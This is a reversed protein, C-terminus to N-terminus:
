NDYYTYVSTFSISSDSFYQGYIFIKIANYVPTSTGAGFRTNIYKKINIYLSKSPADPTLIYKKDFLIDSKYYTDLAKPQFVIQSQTTPTRLLTSSNLNNEKDIAIIVRVVDNSTVRAILGKIKLSKMRVMDGSRQSIGDGQSFTNLIQSYGTNSCTQPAVEVTNIHLEGQLRKSIKYIKKSIKSTNNYYRKKKYARKNRKYRKYAM